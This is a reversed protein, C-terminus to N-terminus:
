TVISKIKRLVVELDNKIDDIYFDVFQLTAIAIPKKNADILVIYAFQVGPNSEEISFLFDRHFYLNKDCNLAEWIEESIEPVSSFYLANNTNTCAKM